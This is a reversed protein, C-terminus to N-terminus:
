VSIPSSAPNSALAVSPTEPLALCQVQTEQMGPWCRSWLALRARHSIHHQGAQRTCIFFM